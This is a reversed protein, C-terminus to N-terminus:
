AETNQYQESSKIYAKKREYENYFTNRHRVLEKMSYLNLYQFKYFQVYNEDLNQVQRVISQAQM